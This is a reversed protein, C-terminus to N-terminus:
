KGGDLDYLIFLALKNDCHLVLFVTCKEMFCELDREAVNKVMRRILDRNFPFVDDGNRM